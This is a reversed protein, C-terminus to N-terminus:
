PKCSWHGWAGGPHGTRISYDVLFAAAAINAEPDYPSAGGFGAFASAFRFTAPKFQYLGMTGSAPNYAKPNGSSECRMVKLAETIRAPAFYQQVLARWRQVGQIAAQRRVEEEFRRVAARYDAEAADVENGAVAVRSEASRLEQDAADFLLDLEAIALDAKAELEVVRAQDAELEVRLREMERKTAAFRDLEGMDRNSAQRLLEHGTAVEHFSDAEFFADLGDGGGSMYASIARDRVEVRLRRVEAEYELIRDTLRAVEFSVQELETNIASFREIAASLEDGVFARDDEAEAVEGRASALDRRAREVEGLARDVDQKTQARAVAGGLALTSVLFVTLVPALVRSRSM